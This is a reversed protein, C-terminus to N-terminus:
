SYVACEHLFDVAKIQKKRDILRLDFPDIGPGDAKPVGSM